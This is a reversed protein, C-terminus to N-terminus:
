LYNLRSCSDYYIMVQPCNTTVIIKEPRHAPFDASYSDHCRARVTQLLRQRPRKIGLHKTGFMAVLEGNLDNGQPCSRVLIVMLMSPRVASNKIFVKNRSLRLIRMQIVVDSCALQKQTQIRGKHFVAAIPEVLNEAFSCAIRDILISSHATCHVNVTTSYYQSELNREAGGPSTEYSM